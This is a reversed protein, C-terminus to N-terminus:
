RFSVRKELTVWLLCRFATKELLTKCLNRFHGIIKIINIFNDEIPIQPYIHIRVM